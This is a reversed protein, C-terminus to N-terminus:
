NFRASPAHQTAQVIFMKCDYVFDRPKDTLSAVIQVMVCPVYYNVVGGFALFALAFALTM